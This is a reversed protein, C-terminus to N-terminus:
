GHWQVSNAMGDKGHWRHVRRGDEATTNHGDRVEGRKVDISTVAGGKGQRQWRSMNVQWSGDRGVWCNCQDGQGTGRM